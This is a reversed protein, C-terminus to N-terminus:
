ITSGGHSSYYAVTDPNSANAAAVSIVGEVAQQGIIADGPTQYTLSTNGFTFLELERAAASNKKNIRIAAHLTSGTLNTYQVQEFPNDNGNQMTTSSDLTQSTDANILYLDYNNGSDGFPDSWQLIAQFSRGSPIDLTDAVVGNAFEHLSGRSFSTGSDVYMAQYHQLYSYNGAATLYTVGQNVANQAANAVPGDAFFPEGFFGLDDVIINCGQGVLYNISSVMDVSTSPASFYLQAGPALDHVIELMATGENGSGTHSPHVTVAPLEAGVSAKNAVGDSIVGVKVGTGDIGYAAFASRVKDALLISDGASVVSNVVPYDPAGVSSVGALQEIAAMKAAPVWAEIVKGATGAIRVGLSKLSGSVQSVKGSVHVYADVRQEADFRAALGHPWVASVSALM